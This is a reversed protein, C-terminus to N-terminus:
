FAYATTRVTSSATQELLMDRIANALAKRDSETNGTNQGSVNIVPSQATLNVNAIFKREAVDILAKLEEDTASVSKKISSVDSGIDGLGGTLEDFPIAAQETLDNVADSFVKNLDLEDFFNGVKGGIEIGKDMAENEDVYEMPKFYEKYNSNAITDDRWENLDGLIGDFASTLNLEGLGILDLIPNVFNQVSDAVSRLKGVIDIALDLFLVKIAAGPETFVNGLFNGLRALGNYVPIIFNNMGKAYLWGFVAGIVEGEEKWTAGAKKATWMLVGIGAAVLLVPALASMWAAAASIGAAVMQAGVAAAVVGVAALAAVFEDKHEQVWERAEDLKDTLSNIWDLVPKINKTAANKFETWVQSWKMPMDEFAANTEEAANLLANKVVAATIRGESAMERMTGVNVGMYKAIAQAITPTQELITNLEEGRLVGSSMAQSLQLMAAQAGNATTQSLTLHKNFQETFSVIEKTSDFAEGALTGLKAVMSATETYSGRARQASQYVMDNLQATTQLGDNISDLRAETSSLEDSLNLLSQLGRLSVYTALLNKLSRALNGGGTAASAFNRSLGSAGSSVQTQATTMKNAAAAATNQSSAFNKAAQSAEQMESTIAAYQAQLSRLESGTRELQADLTRFEATNQRGSAVMREQRQVGTAFQANLRIIRRDLTNAVSAYNQTASKALDTATTARSGLAIYQNFAASFKDELILSERIAAM